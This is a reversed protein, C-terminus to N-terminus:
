GLIDFALALFLFKNPITHNKSKCMLHQNKIWVGRVGFTELLNLRGGYAFYVGIVKIADGRLLCVM